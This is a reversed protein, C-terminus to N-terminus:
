QINKKPPPHAAAKALGRGLFSWFLRSFLEKPDKPRTKTTQQDPPDTAVFVGEGGAFFLIFMCVCVGFCIFFFIPCVCLFISFMALFVLYIM